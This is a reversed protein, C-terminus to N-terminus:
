YVKQAETFMAKINAPPVDSQIAEHSPSIILGTPFLTRLHKVAAMVEEPTGNPLLEQTDVGGCFSVQGEFHAKLNEPDMGKALAQIPHVIDVGAEILMPIARIISGCSHYSVKVGYSHAMDILEKAGPIVFEKVMEPSIMLDLQSGM